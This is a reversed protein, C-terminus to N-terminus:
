NLLHNPIVLREDALMDSVGGRQLSGIIKGFLTAELLEMTGEFAHRLSLGLGSQPCFSVARQPKLLLALDLSRFQFSLNITFCNTNSFLVRPIVVLLYMSGSIGSM